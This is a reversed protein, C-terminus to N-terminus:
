NSNCLCNVLAAISWIHCCCCCRMLSVHRLSHLYGRTSGGASSPPGHVPSVGMGYSTSMGPAPGAHRDTNFLRVDLIGIRHVDAVSFRSAGVESTDGDHIIYEQVTDASGTAVSSWKNGSTASM